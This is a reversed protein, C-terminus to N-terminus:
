NQLAQLVAEACRMGDVAASTIGGAYGAGEGCPYLGAAGVSCCDEGRPIRVPSSSRTEPATLVADPDDFGRLKRGLAPLAEALVTTIQEPLVVSLDGWKVGPRYTPQVSGPGTSPVNALFDGVRQAPAHYNEGGYRFAAQEIERQWEMGAFVGNGPFDAPTLTVLLAANANEGDRKSRSMGNTVVGGPESAAAFVEGGPCMCFTYASGHATRCNLSYDAPPLADGRPQAYQARDIADQKHEIRVGMSFPKPEMPIGAAHLARFTDRASHGIALIAHRTEIRRTGAPTEVTLATLAGDESEIGTVRHQFRVEGGRSIVDERIRRVVDVLVDTGIHPKADYLIHAPAGHAAFQELVWRIRKDHTNTNLKGDSFTGAGGEGFQVNSEPDFPGGARFTEVARCRADVDQGRELVIPRAGAMALLLAAFMGAPGFGIVVPRDSGPQVQPVPYPVDQVVSATKCRKALTGEDGAVTVGVTYVWWLAPKRRADLSKKRITLTEIGGPDIGLARAAKKRLLTEPEGPRLKLNSIAIM